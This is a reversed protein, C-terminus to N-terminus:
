ETAAVEREGRVFVLYASVIRKVFNKVGRFTEGLDHGFQLYVRARVAAYNKSVYYRIRECANRVDHSSVAAVADILTYKRKAASECIMYSLVELTEASADAFGIRLLLKQAETRCVGYTEWWEKLRLWSSLVPLVGGYREQAGVM